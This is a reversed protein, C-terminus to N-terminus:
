SYSNPIEGSICLCARGSAIRVSAARLPHVSGAPIYHSGVSLRLCVAGNFMTLVVLEIRLLPRPRIGLCNPGVTALEM